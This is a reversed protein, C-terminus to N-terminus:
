IINERDNNCWSFVEEGSTMWANREYGYKLIKGYLKQWDTRYPCNFSNNHWSFTIIGNYKEITDIIKKIIRWLGEVSNTPNLEQYAQKDTYKSLNFLATDMVALPLEMIDIKTKSNLNFPNFLHCLGNRFGIQNNYGLTTDYKFGAKALLEWTLPIKFKLYHNRYGIIKKGLVNEM